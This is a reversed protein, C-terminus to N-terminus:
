FLFIAAFLEIDLVVVPNIRAESSRLVDLAQDTQVPQVLELEVSVGVASHLSGLTLDRGDPHEGDGAKVEHNADNNFGHGHRLSPFSTLAWHSNILHSHQSRSQEVLQEPHGNQHKPDDNLHSLTVKALVVLGVNAPHLPDDEESVHSIVAAVNAHIAAICDHKYENEEGGVEQGNESDLCTVVTVESRGESDAEEVENVSSSVDESVFEKGRLELEPAAVELFDNPSGFFFASVALGLFALFGFLVLSDTILHLLSGVPVVSIRKVQVQVVPASLVTGSVVNTVDHRGEM